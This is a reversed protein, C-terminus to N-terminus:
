PCFGMAAHTRPLQCRPLLLRVSLVCMVFRVRIRNINMRADAIETSEALYVVVQCRDM